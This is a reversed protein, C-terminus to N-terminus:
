NQKFTSTLSPNQGKIFTEIRGKKLIDQVELGTCHLLLSKKQKPNAVGQGMVYLEFSRLWRSWTPAIQTPDCHPDFRSVGQVDVEKTTDM